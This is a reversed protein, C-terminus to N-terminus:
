RVVTRGTSWVYERDPAIVKPASPWSCARTCSMASTLSVNASTGFHRTWFFPPLGANTHGEVMGVVPNDTCWGVHTLNGPSVFGSYLVYDIGWTGDANRKWNVPAGFDSGSYFTYLTDPGSLTVHLDNADQQTANTIDVNYCYGPQPPPPPM